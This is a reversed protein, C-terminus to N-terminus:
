LIPPKISSSLDASLFTQTYQNVSQTLHDATVLLTADGTLGFAM